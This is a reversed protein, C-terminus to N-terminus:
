PNEEQHEDHEPNAPASVDSDVPPRTKVKIRRSIRSGDDHTLTVILNHGLHGAPVCSETGEQEDAVAGCERCWTSTGVIRPASVPAWTVEMDSM